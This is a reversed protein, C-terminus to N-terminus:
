RKVGRRSESEQLADLLLADDDLEPVGPGADQRPLEDELDELPAPAILPLNRLDSLEGELNGIFRQERRREVARKLFLPSLLLFSLIVGVAFALVLAVSLPTEYQLSPFPTSLDFSLFPIRVVVWQSNKFLFLAVVGSVLILLVAAIFFLVARLGSGM